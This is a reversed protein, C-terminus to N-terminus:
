VESESQEGHIKQILELLDDRNIDQSVYEIYKIQWSELDQIVNTLSTQAQRAAAMDIGVDGNPTLAFVRARQSFGIGDRLALRLYATSREANIKEAVCKTLLKFKLLPVSIDVAPVEALDYHLLLGVGRALESTTVTALDRLLASLTTLGDLTCHIRKM